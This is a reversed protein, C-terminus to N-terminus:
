NAFCTLGVSDGFLHLQLNGKRVKQAFVCRSACAQPRYVCALVM